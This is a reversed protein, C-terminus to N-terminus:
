LQILITADSFVLCTSAAACWVRPVCFFAFVPEREFDNLIRKIVGITIQQKMSEMMMRVGANGNFAASGGDITKPTRNSRAQRSSRRMSYSSLSLHFLPFAHCKALGIQVGPM